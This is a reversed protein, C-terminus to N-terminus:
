TKATRVQHFVERFCDDADRELSNLSCLRAKDIGNLLKKLTTALAGQPGILRIASVEQSLAKIAAALDDLNGSDTPGPEFKHVVVVVVVPLNPHQERLTQVQLHAFKIAGTVSTGPQLGLEHQALVDPDPPLGCSQRVWPHHETRSSIKQLSGIARAHADFWIDQSHDGPKLHTRYRDCLTALWDGNGGIELASASVDIAFLSLVPSTPLFERGTLGIALVLVLSLAFLVAPNGRQRALDFSPPAPDTFHSRHNLTMHSSKVELTSKFQISM